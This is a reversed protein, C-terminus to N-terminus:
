HIGKGHFDLAYTPNKGEVLRRPIDMRELHSSIWMDDVFYCAEHFTPHGTFDFILDDKFFKKRYLTGACGLILDTFGEREFEVGRQEHPIQSLGDPLGVIWGWRKFARTGSGDIPWGRVGM